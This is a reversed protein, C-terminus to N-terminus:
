QTLKVEDLITILTLYSNGIYPNFIQWNVIVKNTNYYIDNEKKIVERNNGSAIVNKYMAPYDFSNAINNYSAYVHIQNNDNIWEQLDDSYKSSSLSLNVYKVDNEKMWNLGEIISQTSIKGNSDSADYYVVDADSAKQIFNVILDGHNLEETKETTVEKNTKIVIESERTLRGDIVGIVANTNVKSLFIFENNIYAFGIIVVVVILSVIKITRIRVKKSM